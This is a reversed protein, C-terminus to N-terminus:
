AAESEWWLNDSVLKSSNSLGESDGNKKINM